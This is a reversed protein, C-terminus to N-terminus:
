VKFPYSLRGFTEYNDGVKEIETALSVGFQKEVRSGVFAVLRLFDTVSGSQDNVFFNAHKNSVVVGGIRTNKLGAREVFFGASLGNVKKFVSGLSLGNPQTRTRKYTFENCMKIIDYEPRNDFLFTASIIIIGFLNSYHYGFHIENKKLTVIKGNLFAEISVLKDSISFGFAGANSKIAGGISAPINILGEFGSLNNKKLIECFKPLLMGCSVSVLTKDILVEDVMKSTFILVYNLNEVVLINSSNGIVRFFIKNSYFYKLVSVLEKKNKPFVAFRASMGLKM